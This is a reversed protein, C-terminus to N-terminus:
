EVEQNRKAERKFRELDRKRVGLFYFSIGMIGLIFGIGGLIDHLRITEKLDSIERQLPKIKRAVAGEIMKELEAENVGEAASAEDRESSEADTDGTEDAADQQAPAAAPVATLLVGSLFFCIAIARGGSM